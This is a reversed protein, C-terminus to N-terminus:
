PPDIPAPQGYPRVEFYQPDEDSDSPRARYIGPEPAARAVAIRAAQDANGEADEAVVVWSGEVEREVLFGV